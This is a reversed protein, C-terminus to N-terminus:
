FLASPRIKTRHIVLRAWIIVKEALYRCTAEVEPETNGRGGLGAMMSAAQVQKLQELAKHLGM